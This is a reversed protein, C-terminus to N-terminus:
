AGSSERAAQLDGQWVRSMHIPKFGMAVNINLMPENSAANETDIRTVDPYEATIREILTAKLWRGLGKNRHDPHVGTDWQWALDPQLNQTNIQTYGAFQGSPKHVAILNHLKSARVEVTREHERWTQPTMAEDDAEYDERPATNMVEALNSMDDIIEEPIPSLYYRLEYEVARESARRIWSQMLDHDLDDIWLRSRKDTYVATLGVKECLKEAPAGLKVWTDFRKRGAQQLEDFMSAALRRAHGRGRHDPHVHIRGFGNDLNQDLDYATLAVGVIEGSDHLTWRKIPQHDMVGRWDHITQEWPTPPDDPLDEAQVVDYYAALERLLPEPATRTDVQEIHLGM